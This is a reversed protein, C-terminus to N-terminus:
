RCTLSKIINLHYNDRANYIPGVHLLKITKLRKLMHPGIIHTTSNGRFWMSDIRDSNKCIYFERKSYRKHHIEWSFIIMLKEPFKRVWKLFIWLFSRSFYDRVNKWLWYDWSNTEFRYKKAALTSDKTPWHIPTPWNM